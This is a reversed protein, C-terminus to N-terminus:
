DDVRYHYQQDSTGDLDSIKSYIEYYMTFLGFVYLFFLDKITDNLSDPVGLFKHMMFYTAMILYALLGVCIGLKFVITQWKKFKAYAIIIRSNGAIIFIQSSWTILAILPVADLPCVVYTVGIVGVMATCSALLITDLLFYLKLCDTKTECLMCSGIINFIIVITSICLCGIM